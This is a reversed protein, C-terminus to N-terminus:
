TGGRHRSTRAIRHMDEPVTLIGWDLARDQHYQKDLALAISAKAMEYGLYFAHGRDVNDSIPERLLRDFLRFPDEDNLHLQRTVLHISDDQAFLRYNNDRIADALADLTEPTFQNVKRDRLM